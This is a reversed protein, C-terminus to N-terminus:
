IKIKGACFPCGNGRFRNNIIAKWEHGEKCLWWVVRHSRPTVDNPKLTGNKVPHWERALDPNLIALNREKTAYRGSCYPCGAQNVGTRINIPAEWEHGENCVWWVKKGSHVSFMEPTLPGNKIYNWAMALTPELVMLSQDPLPGPLYSLITKYEIECQLQQKLLYTKVKERDEDGLLRSLSNLLREIIVFHHDTQSFFIDTESLTSLRADRIRFLKVGCEEFKNNKLIEHETKDKHWHYSDVEIGIKKEPLYVDCEYGFIKKRWEVQGFIGKMEVYVRVELDSTRGSCYPCGTGIARNYVTSKFSHGRKCLWWIKKPSRATVDNPSLNHNKTPHWQDALEPSVTAFSNEKSVKQGSCYPCRSGNVRNCIM